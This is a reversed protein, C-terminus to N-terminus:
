ANAEQLQKEQKSEGNLPIEGPLLAPLTVMVGLKKMLKQQRALRRIVTSFDTGLPGLVMDYDSVGAAISMIQAATLYGVDVNCAAPQHIHICSQWNAPPDAVRPDNDIAWQMFWIVAERLFNKWKQFDGNFFADGADLEARIEVGQGRASGSSLKPIVLCRPVHAATCISNILFEWLQLSAESPRNGSDFHIKEGLKMGYVYAGTEKRYVELRKQLEKDDPPSSKVGRYANIAEIKKDLPNFQGSATEIGVARVNQANAAKMEIDLLDELKNILVECAYFDSVSRPQDTRHMNRLQWCKDVPILFWSSDNQEFSSQGSRVWFGIKKLLQRGNIKVLEFEVGDILTVSEQEFKNWPSEIRHAEVLQLVPKQVNLIRTGLNLPLSKRTQLIFSEGDVKQDRYAIKLLQGMTEGNWGCNQFWESIVDDAFDYWPDDENKEDNPYFSVHLGSAGVTYREGVSLIAEVIASNQSWYRMRRMMERRTIYNQDWRADQILSPLYSFEGGTWLPWGGEYWNRVGHYIKRAVNSRPLVKSSLWRTSNLTWKGYTPLQARAENLLLISVPSKV